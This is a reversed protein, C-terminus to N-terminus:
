IEGLRHFNHPVFQVQRDANKVWMLLVAGFQFADRGKQLPDPLGVQDGALKGRRKVSAFPAKWLGIDQHGATM